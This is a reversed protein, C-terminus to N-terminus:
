AISPKLIVELVLEALTSYEEAHLNGRQLESYCHNLALHAAELDARNQAASMAIETTPYIEHDSVGAMKDPLWCRFLYGQGEAVIEILWGHYNTCINM